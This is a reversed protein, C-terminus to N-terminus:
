KRIKIFPKEVKGNIFDKASCSQTKIYRGGYLHYVTHPILKSSMKTQDTIIEYEYVKPSINNIIEIKSDIKFKQLNLFMFNSFVKKIDSQSNNKNIINYLEQNCVERNSFPYQESISVSEFLFPLEHSSIEQTVEFPVLFALYIDGDAENKADVMGEHLVVASAHAAAQRPLQKRQYEKYESPGVLMVAFVIISIITTGVVKYWCLGLWRIGLFVDGVWLILCLVLALPFPVAPRPDSLLPIGISSVFAYVLYYCVAWAISILLFYSGVTRFSFTGRVNHQKRAM